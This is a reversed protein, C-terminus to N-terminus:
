LGLDFSALINENDGDKGKQVKQILAILNQLNEGPAKNIENDLIELGGYAYEEFITAYENLSEPKFIDGNKTEAFAITQMIDLGNRLNEFVSLRIGEDTNELPKREGHYFGVTASLLLVEAKSEFIGTGSDTLIDLLDKYDKPPRIRRDLGAKSM